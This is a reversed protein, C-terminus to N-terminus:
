PVNGISNLPKIMYNEIHKIANKLDEARFNNKM